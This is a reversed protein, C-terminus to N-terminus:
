RSQSRLRHCFIDSVHDLDGAGGDVDLEDFAGHRGDILRKADDAVTKGHRGGDIDNEFHLLM